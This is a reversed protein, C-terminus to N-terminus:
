TLWPIKGVSPKGGGVGLSSTHIIISHRDPSTGIVSTILCSTFMLKVEEAKMIFPESVLNRVRLTLSSHNLCLKLSASLLKETISKDLTKVNVSSTCTTDLSSSDNLPVSNESLSATKIAKQKQNM